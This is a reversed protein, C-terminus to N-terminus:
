RETFCDIQCIGARGGLFDLNEPGILAAAPPMSATPPWAAVKAPSCDIVSVPPPSDLALSVQRETDTHYYSGM